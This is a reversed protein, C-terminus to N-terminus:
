PQYMGEVVPAIETLKWGQNKLADEVRRLKFTEPLEPSQAKYVRAAYENIDTGNESAKKQWAPRNDVEAEPKKVARKKPADSTAM